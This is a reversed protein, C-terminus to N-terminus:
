GLLGFTLIVKKGEVGFHDKYFNPDVFPVDPIGHPILKIKHEPIDYIGTLFEYARDAMVVFRDCVEGLQRTIERQDDNPDKLVTHLTAVIPMRLRRLLDLIYKGSPGGFLGFEHQLCCVDVKSMNLFDAALRYEGQRHQNVEFWVRPPYRYGEPRDNMAVSRVDAHPAAKAIGDALDGTFTAIGCRRPMCSGIFAISRLSEWSYRPEQM